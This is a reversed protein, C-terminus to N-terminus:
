MLLSLLFRHVNGIVITDSVRSSGGISDMLGTSASSNLPAMRTGLDYASSTTRYEPQRERDRGQQNGTQYGDRDYADRREYDPLGALSTSRSALSDTSYGYSTSGSSMLGAVSSGNSGNTGAGLGSSYSYSNSSRSAYDTMLVSTSSATSGLGSAQMSPVGGFPARGSPMQLLGVDRDAASSLGRGGYSMSSPM